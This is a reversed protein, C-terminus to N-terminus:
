RYGRRGSSTCNDLEIRVVRKQRLHVSWQVDIAHVSLLSQEIMVGVAVVYSPLRAVALRPM